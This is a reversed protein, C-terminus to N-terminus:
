SAGNTAGAPAPEPEPTLGLETAMFLFSRALPQNETRRRLEPWDVQERVGRVMALLGEFDLHSENLALLKSTLVDTPALVPVPMGAVNVVRAAGLVEETIPLGM